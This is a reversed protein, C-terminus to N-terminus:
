RLKGGDRSSPRLEGDLRLLQVAQRRNQSKVERLAEIAVAALARYHQRFEIRGFQEPLDWSGSDDAEALAKAVVEIEDADM